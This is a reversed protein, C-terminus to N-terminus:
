WYTVYTVYMLTTYMRTGVGHMHDGCIMCVNCAVIYAVYANLTSACMRNMFTVQLVHLQPYKTFPLHWVTQTWECSRFPKKACGENLLLPVREAQQLSLGSTLFSDLLTPKIESSDIVNMENM